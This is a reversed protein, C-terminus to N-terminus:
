EDTSVNIKFGLTIGNFIASDGLTIYINYTKETSLISHINNSPNVSAAYDFANKNALINWGLSNTPYKQIIFAKSLSNEEIGLDLSATEATNWRLL